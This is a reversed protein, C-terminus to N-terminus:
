AAQPSSDLRQMAVACDRVAQGTDQDTWAPGACGNAWFPNVFVVAAGGQQEFLLAGSELGHLVVQRWLRPHQDILALMDSAHRGGSHVGSPRVDLGTFRFRPITMLEHLAVVAESLLESQRRPTLTDFWAGARTEAASVYAPSRWRDVNGAWDQAGIVALDRLEALKLGAEIETELGAPLREDFSWPEVPPPDRSPRKAAQAGGSASRRHNFILSM